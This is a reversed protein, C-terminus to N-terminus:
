SFILSGIRIMDSGEEIAIKWDNSMGMSTKLDYRDALQRLSRFASRIPEKDSTLPAMTMLGKLELNPFRSSQKDQTFGFSEIAKDAEKLSIGHKSKEGSVNVQLFVPMRKGILRLREDICHALELSDMSHIEDFLGIAKNVKNKQLTGILIKKIYKDDRPSAHATAIGFPDRSQPAQGSRFRSIEGRLSLDQNKKIYDFKKEADQIRNEGICISRSPHQKITELLERLSTGDLYKTALVVTIKEPKRGCAACVWDLEQFLRDLRANIASANM